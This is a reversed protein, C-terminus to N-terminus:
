GISVKVGVQGLRLVDGNTIVVPITVNEENLLTGNTSALDELWWQSQRYALRAHRSSVTQDNIAFDCGADRGLIVEACTFEKRLPPSDPETVLTILTPQRAALVAGQTRIDKWIIYLAVGLFAYILVVGLIRLVLLIIASV